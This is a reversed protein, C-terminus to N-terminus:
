MTGHQKERKEKWGTCSIHLYNNKWGGTVHIDGASGHQHPKAARKEWWKSGGEWGWHLHPPSLSWGRKERLKSRIGAMYAEIWTLFIKLIGLLHTSVCGLLLIIRIVGEPTYYLLMITYYFVWYEIKHFYRTSTLCMWFVTYPKPSKLKQRKWLFSISLSSM